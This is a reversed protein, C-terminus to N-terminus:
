DPDTPLSASLKSGAKVFRVFEQGFEDIQDGPSASIFGAVRFLGLDMVGGHTGKGKGKGKRNTSPGKALKRFVRVNRRRQMNITFQARVAQQMCCLSTTRHHPPATCHVNQASCTGRM